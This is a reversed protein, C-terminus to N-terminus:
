EGEGGFCFRAVGADLLLYSGQRTLGEVGELAIRFRGKAWIRLGKEAKANYATQLRELFVSKQRTKAQRRLLDALAERLASLDLPGCSQVPAPAEQPEPNPEPDQSHGNGLRYLEMQYRVESGPELALSEERDLDPAKEDSIQDPNGRLLEVVEAAPECKRCDGGHRLAYLHRMLCLRAQPDICPAANM